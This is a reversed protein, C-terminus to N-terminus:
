ERHDREATGAEALDDLIAFVYLAVLALGFV